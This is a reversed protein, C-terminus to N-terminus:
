KKAASVITEGNVVSVIREERRRKGRGRVIVYHCSNPDLSLALSLVAAATLSGARVLFHSPPQARWLPKTSSRWSM